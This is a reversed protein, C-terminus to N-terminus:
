TASRLATRCPDPFSPTKVPSGRGHRQGFVPSLAIELFGGLRRASRHARGRAPLEGKDDLLVGRAPQMVIEPELEVADQLAPRHRLTRAGVGRFLPQRDMDLVMREFIAPELADNGGPLVAGPRRHDPIAAAPGREIGVRMRSVGLAVEFEQEVAFLQVAFPRQDAHAALMGAAVVLVPQQDLLAVGRRRRPAAISDDGVVRQADGGAAGDVLDGGVAVPHPPRVAFLGGGAGFRRAGGVSGAHRAGSLAPHRGIRPRKQGGGGVLRRVPGVPKVLDFVVAIAQQGPDVIPHGPERGAAAEVPGPFKRSQGGAKALQRDVGRHDVALEDVEFGVARGIEAM